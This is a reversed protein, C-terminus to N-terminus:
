AREDEEEQRGIVCWKFEVLLESKLGELPVRM